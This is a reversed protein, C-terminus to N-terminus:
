HTLKSLISEIADTAAQQYRPHDLFDEEKDFIDDIVEALFQVKPENEIIELIEEAQQPNNTMFFPTTFILAVATSKSDIVQPEDPEGDATIVIKILGFEEGEVMAGMATVGDKYTKASFDGQNNPNAVEILSVIEFDEPIFGSPPNIKGSIMITETNSSMEEKSRFDEGSSWWWFVAVVVLFLVLVVLIIVNKKSM